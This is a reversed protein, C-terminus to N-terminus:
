LPTHWGDFLDFIKLIESAVICVTENNEWADAVSKVVIEGYMTLYSYLEGFQSKTDFLATIFYLM